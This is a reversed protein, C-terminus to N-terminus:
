YVSMAEPHTSFPGPLAPSADLTVWGASSLPWSSKRHQKNQALSLDPGSLRGGM